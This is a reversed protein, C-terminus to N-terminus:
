VGSSPSSPICTCVNVGENRVPPSQVHQSNAKLAANNITAGGHMLRGHDILRRGMQAGRTMVAGDLKRPRGRETQRDELRM